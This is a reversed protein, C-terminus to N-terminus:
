STDAIRAAAACTFVADNLDKLIPAAVDNITSARAGPIKLFSLAPHRLKGRAMLRRLRAAATEPDNWAAVLAALRRRLHAELQDPTRRAAAPKVPAPPTLGPVSIRPRQNVPLYEVRARPQSETLRFLPARTTPAPRVLGRDARPHAPRTSTLPPAAHAPLGAAFLYLARRPIAETPLLFHRLVWRLFALGFVKGPEAALLDTLQDIYWGTLNDAQGLLHQEADNHEPSPPLQSM